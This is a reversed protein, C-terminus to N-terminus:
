GHKKNFTNASAIAFIILGATIVAMRGAATTGQESSALGLNHAIAAGFIMGFLTVTSDSNGSGALVAQRFPCGSLLVSGLGVVFLGSINWIWETHAIPQGYFGPNFRGTIINGVLGVALLAGIGGLMSFNRFLIGDRIVGSFCLRSLFGIAGMALGAVLSIVSPAHPTDSVIIGSVAGAILLVSLGPIVFGDTPSVVYTRKLTFGNKIFVAGAAAGGAFGILGAVANLDGGSIRLFMRMPCGLFVLAGIMVCAGMVFRTVPASGGKPSYEKTFRSAAFAGIIIGVIEPRVYRLGDVRHLGLAGATDRLFCAACLGMNGPNGLVTLVVAIVAAAAGAFPLKIKDELNNMYENYCLM